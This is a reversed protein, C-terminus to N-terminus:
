GNRLWSLISPLQTSEWSPALRATCFRDYLVDIRTQLADVMRQRGVTEDDALPPDPVKAGRVSLDSHLEFTFELDEDRLGFRAAEVAKGELIATRATASTAPAGGKLDFRQAEDAEGRLVLRDEVWVDMAVGTAGTISAYDVESRYWLWLLFERGLFDAEIEEDIFEFKIM